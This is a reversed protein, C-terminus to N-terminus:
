AVVSPAAVPPAPEGGYMQLSHLRHYLGKRALLEEHTGVEVIQGEDVVVIRDANMVTSLRHAIVFVTRGKVLNALAKQLKFESEADLESTAEDLILIPPDKLLARAIAIRQRQGGSLRVGREGIITDYGQPLDLIFDHAYALQAAQVVADFSAGPKGYAINSAISENFLITEQTVIGIYARLSALTYERIDVGDLTIRGSTVDHFRPILDALTSKGAGSMGVFAVMEGRRVVLSVQHLVPARGDDYQFTVDEFAMAERLAPLPRAGARDTVTQQLDLLEFVREAAPISQQIQNSVNGLKRIPGYLMMLGTLFSFFTGPTTEGQIVRSGGYWLAVGIGIAGIFEMLPSTIEDLKVDRMLLDYLTRNAQRFREREHDERGFAKVIKTGTFTEQIVVNLEAIKEQGRTNIAQLRKGIRVLLLAILPFVLIAISALRWERTFIVGLLVVFTFVQRIALAPAQSSIRTLRTVDNTLRSMLEGTARSNFFSLSMGLLHEYVEQRLRMVIRQGVQAMLCSQIYRSGEKLFFVGILAFPLVQLMFLDKRLFVDDLLPKVLWATAGELGSIMLALLMAIAIRGWYPRAYRLLRRYIKM